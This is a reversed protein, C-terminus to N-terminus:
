LDSLTTIYIDEWTKFLEKYVGTKIVARYGMLHSKMVQLVALLEATNFM